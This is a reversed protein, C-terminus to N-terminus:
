NRRMILKKILLVQIQIATTDSSSTKPFSNYSPVVLSQAFRRLLFKSEQIWKAKRRRGEVHKNISCNFRPLMHLTMSPSSISQQESLFNLKKLCLIGRSLGSIISFPKLMKNEGAKHSLKPDKKALKRWASHSLYFFLEQETLLLTIELASNFPFIGM